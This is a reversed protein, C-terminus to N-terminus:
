PTTVAGPKGSLRGQCPLFITFRTFHDVQSDVRIDGGHDKIIGYTVSLGLGTGEGVDKTTFFPDFVQGIQHAPIGSGNDEFEIQLGGSAGDV